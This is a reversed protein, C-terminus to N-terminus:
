CADPSLDLVIKALDKASFGFIPRGDSSIKGLTGLKSSVAQAAELSPAFLLTHIRRTKGSQNYINSVEATLIFQVGQDEKKLRLFGNGIPELKSRLETLYTPHTFDGTGVLSIGKKKAWRALTEVEMEKSTARSYKSHLHFDAIVRM